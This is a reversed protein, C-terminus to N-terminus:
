VHHVSRTNRVQQPENGSQVVPKLDWDEEQFETLNFEKGVSYQLTQCSFIHQIKMLQGCGMAWM